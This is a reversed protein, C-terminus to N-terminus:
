EGKQLLCLNLEHVLAAVCFPEAGKFDLSRMWLLVSCSSTSVLQMPVDLPSTHSTSFSVHVMM